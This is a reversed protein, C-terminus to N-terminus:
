EYKMVMSTLSKIFRSFICFAQGSFDCIDNNMKLLQLNEMCCKRIDPYISKIIRPKNDEYRQLEPTREEPICRERTSHNTVSAEFSIIAKMKLFFITL